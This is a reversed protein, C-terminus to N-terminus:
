IEFTSSKFVTPRRGAGKEVIVIDGQDEALNLPSRVSNENVADSGYKSVLFNRFDAVTFPTGRRDLWSRFENSYHIQVTAVEEKNPAAAAQTAQPMAISSDHSAIPSWGCRVRLMTEVSELESLIKQREELLADRLSM